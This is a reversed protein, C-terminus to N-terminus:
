KVYEGQKKVELDIWVKTQGSIYYLYNDKLDKSFIDATNKVVSTVLNIGGKILYDLPDPPETNTTNSGMPYVNGNADTVNMYNIEQRTKSKELAALYQNSASNIEDAGESVAGWGIEAIKRDNVYTAVNYSTKSENTVISKEVKFRVGNKEIYLPDIVLSAKENVNVLNAFMTIGGVNTQCQPRISSPQKGVKIDDVIYCYGKVSVTVTNTDKPTTANNDVNKVPVIVPIKTGAMDKGRPNSNSYYNVWNLMVENYYDSQEKNLLDTGSLAQEQVVDRGYSASSIINDAEGGKKEINASAIGLCCFLLIIIKKNSM